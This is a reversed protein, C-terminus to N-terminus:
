RSSGRGCTRDPSKTCERTKAEDLELHAADPPYVLEQSRGDFTHTELLELDFDGAGAFVPQDGTQAAIVPFVTIQIRDVLGASLLTRNLSLSGHSRIPVDSEQKMRRVVEVADGSAVTANPWDFPGHLTSSIVTTPCNIMQEMWPDRDEPGLAPLMQLFLGFTTAGFVM